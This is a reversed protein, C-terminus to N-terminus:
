KQTGMLADSYASANYAKDGFLSLSFSCQILLWFTIATAIKNHIMSKSTSKSTTYM